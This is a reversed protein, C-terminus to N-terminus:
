KLLNKLVYKVQQQKIRLYLFLHPCFVAITNVYEQKLIDVVGKNMPFRVIYKEIVKLYVRKLIADDPNLIHLEKQIQTSEYLKKEDSVQSYVGGGHQRYVAGVFNMTRGKGKKLLHYFLHVDRFYKYQQVFEFDLAERRFVVTLPQTLWIKFQSKLNIDIYEKGEFLKARYNNPADDDWKGSTENYTSFRHCCFSYDPNAELFDVQKQLKQPDTWYDDGECFAIYKGQASQMTEYFNRSMGLNKSPLLLRILNSNAQQERICNIRTNDTSNDEGIILEYPYTTEQILVGSIAKTIYDEHNYTIM